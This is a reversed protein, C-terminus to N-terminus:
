DREVGCIDLSDHPLRLLTYYVHQISTNLCCYCQTRTYLVMGHTVVGEVCLEGKRIFVAPEDRINSHFRLLILIFGFTLSMLGVHRSGLYDHIRWIMSWTGLCAFGQNPHVGIKNAELAPYHEPKSEYIGVLYLKM